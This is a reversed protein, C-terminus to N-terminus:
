WKLPCMQYFKFHSQLLNYVRAKRWMLYMVDPIITATFGLTVTAEVIYVNHYLNTLELKKLKLNLMPLIIWFYTQSKIFVRSDHDVFFLPIKLHNQWVNKYKDNHNKQGHEYTNM